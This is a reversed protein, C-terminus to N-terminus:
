PQSGGPWGFQSAPAVQASTLRLCRSGRTFLVKRVVPACPLWRDLPPGGALALRSAPARLPQRRRHAVFLRVRDTRAVPRAPDSSTCITAAATPGTRALCRPVGPLRARKARSAARAEGRDPARGARPKRVRRADRRALHHVDARSVVLARTVGRARRARRDLTESSRCGPACPVVVCTCHRTRNACGRREQEGSHKQDGFRLVRELVRRPPCQSRARIRLSRLHARGTVLGGACWM